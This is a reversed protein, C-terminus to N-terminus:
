NSICGYILHYVTQLWLGGVNGYKGANVINGPSLPLSALASLIFLYPVCATSEHSRIVVDLCIDLVRTPDSYVIECSQPGTLPMLIAFVGSAVM